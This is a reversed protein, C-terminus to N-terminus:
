QFCIKGTRVQLRYQFRGDREIGDFHHMMREDVASLYRLLKQM